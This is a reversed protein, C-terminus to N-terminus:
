LRGGTQGVTGNSIAEQALGASWFFNTFGPSVFVTAQKAGYKSGKLARGWDRPLWEPWEPVKVDSVKAGIFKEVNAKSYCQHGCPSIFKVQLGDGGGFGHGWGEPLWCAWVGPNIEVDAPWHVPKGDLDTGKRTARQVDEYSWIKEGESTHTPRESGAAQTESTPAEPDAKAAPLKPADPTKPVEPKAKVAPLKPPEPTKPVEPKRKAEPSKTEPAEKRKLPSPIPEKTDAASAQPKAPFQSQLVKWATQLLAPRAKDQCCIALGANNTDDIAGIQWGNRGASWFVFCGLCNLGARHNPALSVMQFCPRGNFTDAREYYLGSLTQVFQHESAAADGARAFVALLSTSEAFGRKRLLPGLAICNRTLADANSARAAKLGKCVTEESDACSLEVLALAECLTYEESSVVRRNPDGGAKRSKKQRLDTGVAASIDAMFMSTAFACVSTKTGDLWQVVDTRHYLFGEEQDPPVFARHLSQPLQKFVVRWNRPLWDGQEGGEPWQPVADPDTVYRVRKGDAPDAELARLGVKGLGLDYGMYKELDKKHWFRKYLPAPGIYCQLTKGSAAQTRIGQWWGEPLWPVWSKPDVETDVPWGDPRVRDANEGKKQKVGGHNLLPNLLEEYTYIKGFMPKGAAEYAELGYGEREEGM